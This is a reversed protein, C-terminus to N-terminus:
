IPINHQTSFESNMSVSTTMARRLVENYNVNVEFNQDHELRKLEISENWFFHTNWYMSSSNLLDVIENEEEGFNLYEVIPYKPLFTLIGQDNWVFYRHHMCGRWPPFDDNNGDIGRCFEAVPSQTEIYGAKAIRQMEQCLWFPNYIDELTHRYYVFDVSKEAYPLSDKNLDLYHTKKDALNPWPQWDIFETGRQFAIPGPGVEVVLANDPIVSEVLRQVPQYPTWLKQNLSANRTKISINEM